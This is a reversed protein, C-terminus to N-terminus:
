NVNKFFLDKNTLKLDCKQWSITGSPKFTGYEKNYFACFNQILDNDLLIRKSHLIISTLDKCSQINGCYQPHSIYNNDLSYFRVYTNDYKYLKNTDPSLINYYSLYSIINQEEVNKTAFVNPLLYNIDYITTKLTKDSLISDLLQKNTFYKNIWIIDPNIYDLNDYFSAKSDLGYFTISPDIQSCSSISETNFKHDLVLIKQM